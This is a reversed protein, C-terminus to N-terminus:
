GYNPGQAEGVMLDAPRDIDRLVGEDDCPIAHLRGGERRLLDRAGADGCLAALQGGYAQSFGVPHGRRRGYFPAAIAAGDRLAQAVAAMTAAQIFPMDGLAIVWGQAQRAAEVGCALSFGMGGETRPSSVTELGEARLLARLTLDHDAVVGYAVDVAATLTRAAALAMPGKGDIPHLLKHSGFRSGQGAALLIGAIM